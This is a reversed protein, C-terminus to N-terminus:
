VLETKTLIDEPLTRNLLIKEDLIELTAAVDKQYTGKGKRLMKAGNIACAFAYSFPLYLQGSETVKVTRKWEEPNNGATGTKESRKLSLVELAFSNYLLPKIGEFEVEARIISM